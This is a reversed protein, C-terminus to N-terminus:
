CSSGFLCVVAFGGWFLFKTVAAWGGVGGVCMYMSVFSRNTGPAGLSPRQDRVRALIQLGLCNGGADQLINFTYSATAHLQVSYPVM